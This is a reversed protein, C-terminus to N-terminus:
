LIYNSRYKKCAQSLLDLSSSLSFQLRSLLLRWRSFIFPLLNSLTAHFYPAGIYFEKWASSWGVTLDREFAGFLYEAYHLHFIAFASVTRRATTRNEPPPSWRASRRAEVGPSKCRLGRDCFIKTCLWVTPTAERAAFSWWKIPIRGSIRGWREPLFQQGPYRDCNNARRQQGLKGQLM